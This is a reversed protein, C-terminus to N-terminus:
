WESHTGAVKDDIVIVIIIIVIIIIKIKIEATVNVVVWQTGSVTPAQWKIMQLSSSTQLWMHWWLSIIIISIHVIIIIKIEATVNLVM